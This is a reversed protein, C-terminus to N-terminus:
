PQAVRQTGQSLNWADLWKAQKIFAAHGDCFNMNSGERGHNDEPDPFNSNGIKSLVPPEAGGTDSDVMIFIQSPGPKINALFPHTAKIQFGNVRSETKKPNDIGSGTFLGFVEYSLGFFTPAKALAVLDGPVKEGNPKQVSYGDPPVGLPRAVHRTSPCTFSKLAPVYTPFLFSLDDDSATRDADAPLRSVESPLWSPATFNGSWDTAYMLCGIALQKQNNLCSTRQTRSKAKSLAPLLMAALIAIIAIVVLLEILTFGPTRRRCPSGLRTLCDRSMRANIM